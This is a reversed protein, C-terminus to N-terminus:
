WPSNKSYTYIWGIKHCMTLHSGPKQAESEEVVFRTVSIVIPDSLHTLIHVMKNHYRTCLLDECSM